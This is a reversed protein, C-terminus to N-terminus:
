EMKVETQDMKTRAKMDSRPEMQPGRLLFLLVNAKLMSVVIRLRNTGGNEKSVPRDYVNLSVTVM